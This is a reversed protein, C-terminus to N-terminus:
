APSKDDPPPNLYRAQYERVLTLLTGPRIPYAGSLMQSVRPQSVGLRQAFEQQTHCGMAEMLARLEEPTVEPPLNPEPM